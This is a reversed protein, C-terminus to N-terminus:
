ITRQIFSLTEDMFFYCAATLVSFRLLKGLLMFAATKHFNIKYFGLAVAFVDGIFPLWVLLALWSRYKNVVSQQKELKKLSVRFWKEIHELNGARGIGYTILSGSWNGATAVVLSLWINHGLALFALYVVDSCFPIVTAALLTAVFLGFYSLEQINEM